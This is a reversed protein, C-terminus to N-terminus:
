LSLAEPSLMHEWTISLQLVSEGLLPDQSDISDAGQFWGQGQQPRSSNAHEWVTGPCLESTLILLLGKGSRSASCSGFTINVPLNIGTKVETGSFPM